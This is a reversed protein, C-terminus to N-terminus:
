NLSRGVRLSDNSKSYKVLIASFATESMYGDWNHCLDEGVRLFDNLDYIQKKYRFFTSDKVTEYNDKVEDQEKETLDHWHLVPRWNNNTVIM